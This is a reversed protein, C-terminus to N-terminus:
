PRRAHVSDLSMRQGGMVEDRLVAARFNPRTLHRFTKRSSPVVHLTASVFKYKDIISSRASINQRPFYQLLGLFM